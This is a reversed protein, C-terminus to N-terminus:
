LTGRASELTSFTGTPITVRDCTVRSPLLFVTSTGYKNSVFIFWSKLSELNYRVTCSNHQVLTATMFDQRCGRHHKGIM